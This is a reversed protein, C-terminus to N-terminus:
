YKHGEHQKTFDAEYIYKSIQKLTSIDFGLEPMLGYKEISDSMLSGKSNPHQVWTIMYNVFDKKAPFTIKYRKQIDIMSPASVAKFEFHCTICNGHFLLSSYNNAFLNINFFLLILM